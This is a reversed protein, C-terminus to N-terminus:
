SKLVLDVIDLLDRMSRSLRDVAHVHLTDGKRLADLCRQLEPRDKTAGSAKEEYVRGLEVGVLQRATSQEATSVRKYGIHM